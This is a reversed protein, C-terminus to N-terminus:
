TSLGVDLSVLPSHQIDVNKLRRIAGAGCEPACFHLYLFRAVSSLQPNILSSECRSRKSLNQTRPHSTYHWPLVQKQLFHLYQICVYRSGGLVM